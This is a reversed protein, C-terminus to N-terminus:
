TFPRKSRPWRVPSISWCGTRPRRAWPSDMPGTVNAVAAYDRGTPGYRETFERVSLYHHYDPSSPDYLRRILSSLKAQHRLPLQIALRLTETGAMASLRPATGQAIAPPVQGPLVQLPEQALSSTALFLLGFAGIWLATRRTLGNGIANCENM